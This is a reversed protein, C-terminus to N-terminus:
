VSSERLEATAFEAVGQAFPVGARFGLIKEARQPSAFVHRV